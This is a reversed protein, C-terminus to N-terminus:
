FVILYMIMKLMSSLIAWTETRGVVNMYRSAERSVCGLGKGVGCKDLVADFVEEDV